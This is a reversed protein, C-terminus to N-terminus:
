KLYTWGDQQKVKGEKMLHGLARKFAAKSIGFRERIVESSTDDCYPMKGGRNELVELVMNADIDIAKEKAPRMSVNIRGDERVFTVRTSLTQGVRPKDTMEKKSLFAIYRKETFIFAGQETLNYVSGTVMDGIKVDEAPRSARRMEDEVKMTMALRGSKDTYLKAWVIEGVQLKGRMGAYPMFIGREAGVDLFAGDKSTNIVKLRAIQGERMKPVRMSATLRGHPDKYLFVRVKEGVKVPVTQQMKHLLIDDSTNGTQADLFAGMDNIRAVKM